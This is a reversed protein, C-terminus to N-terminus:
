DSAEGSLGAAHRRAACAEEAAEKGEV